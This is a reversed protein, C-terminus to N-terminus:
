LVSTTVQPHLPYRYHNQRIDPMLFSSVSYRAIKKLGKIAFIPLEDKCKDCAKSRTRIWLPASFPDLESGSGCCQIHLVPVQCRGLRGGQRHSARVEGQLQDQAPGSEHDAGEGGGAEGEM